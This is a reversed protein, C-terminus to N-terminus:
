KGINLSKTNDIIVGAFLSGARTGTVDGFRVAFDEGIADILNVDSIGDFINSVVVVVAIGLTNFLERVEVFM